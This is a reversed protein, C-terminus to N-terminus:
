AIAIKPKKGGIIQFKETLLTRLRPAFADLGKFFKKCADRFEDFTEYYRNYLVERKFFKWFREILNLNPCYPPLPELQIRSTTLYAAVAKSKYYRANDCIVIIRPANPNAQEIQEFLAITSDADITDDFRVQASLTEVNIAGNINLRQRGTNSCIPHEKGRKIWGCGVVPNHQPHTADMFYIAADEAKNKKINEYKEVFAEQVEPAPHKGPELKANKSSYGLRHLLATMGSATYRVGWREEVYRAVAASTAYLPQRLYADLAKLREGDLLAEAGVYSMRLLGDLGGKEYRKFYDRVTDADVLLAASVDAATWGVGLLIVANIRYAERVDRAARHAARLEALQRNSLRYDRM